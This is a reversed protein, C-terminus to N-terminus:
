CIVQATATREAVDIGLWGRLELVTMGAGGAAIELHTM